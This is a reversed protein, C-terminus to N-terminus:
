ITPFVVKFQECVVPMDKQFEYESGELIREYYKQHVKRWYTLTGDGEGELAAHKPTVRNFPVIDVAVTRIICQAIGEWNTVLNIDGVEPIKENNLALEWLSPASARKKGSLVLEACEDADTQNDCFHWAPITRGAKLENKELMTRYEGSMKKVSPHM